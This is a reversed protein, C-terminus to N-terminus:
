AGSANTIVDTSPAGPGFTSIGIAYCSGSPLCNINNIGALTPVQVPVWSTGGDSTTIMVDMTDKNATGVAWCEQDSACSVSLDYTGPDTAPPEITWTSGGDSTVAIFSSSTGGPAGDTHTGVVVCHTADPCAISRANSLSDGVSPVWARSWTVGGDTTIWSFQTSVQNANGLATTMVSSMGVCDQATACSFVAPQMNSWGPSGDPNAVWPFDYTSWTVGGNTTQLFVNRTVTNGTSGVPEEEQDSPALGFADCTSADYCTLQNLVGSTGSLEADFAPNNGLVPDIPVSHESWTMGGDTTTLLLQLETNAVQGDGVSLTGYPAQGEQAGVMCEDVTPCSFATDVLVGPPM